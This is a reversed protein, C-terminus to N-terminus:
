PKYLSDFDQGQGLKALLGTIGASGGHAEMWIDTQCASRAYMVQGEERLSANWDEPTVPMDPIPGALCRDRRGAPAVYLTDDAALVTVGQDFWMPVAGTTMHWYGVRGTVEVQALAEAILVPNIAAPSVVIALSGMTGTGSGVAAGVHRYCAADACVLVRPKHRLGGFFVGVRQEAAALAAATQVRQAPVMGQQVYVGDAVRTFGFCGPCTAAVLPRVTLLAIGVTLAALIGLWIMGKLM